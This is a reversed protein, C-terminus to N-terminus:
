PVMRALVLCTNASDDIIHVDIEVTADDSTEVEVRGGNTALPLPMDILTMGATAPTAKFIAEKAAWARLLLRSSNYLEAQSPTLFRSAVKMLSNRWHEIDVGVRCDDDVAVVVERASHSISIFPLPLPDNDTHVLRPEGDSTHELAVREGFVERIVKRVTAIERQRSPASHDDIEIDTEIPTRFITTSGLITTTM